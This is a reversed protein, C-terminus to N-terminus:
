STFRMLVVVVGQRITFAPFEDKPMDYMGFVGLVFFIGVLLLSISYHELPWKIWDLSRKM